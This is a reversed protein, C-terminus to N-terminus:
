RARVVACGAGSSVPAQDAAGHLVRVWDDMWGNPQPTDGCTNDVTFGFKGAQAEAVAPTAKHMMALLRGFEAQDGRAGFNLHDMM